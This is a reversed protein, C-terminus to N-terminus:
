TVIDTGYTLRTNAWAAVFVKGAILRRIAEGPVVLVQEGRVLFTDQTKTGSVTLQAIQVLGAIQIFTFDLKKDFLLFGFPKLCLALALTQTQAVHYRLV